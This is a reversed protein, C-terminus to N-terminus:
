SAQRTRSAAASEHKRKAAAFKRPVLDLTGLKPITEDNMWLGLILWGELAGRLDARCEEITSGSGLVGCFGEIEGVFTGDDIVEYSARHMAKEVYETFM